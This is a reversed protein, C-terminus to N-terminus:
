ASRMTTPRTSCHRTRRATWASSSRAAPGRWATAASGRSSRAHGRGAHLQRHEVGSLLLARAIPSCTTSTWRARSTRRSARGAGAGPLGARPARAGGHDRAVAIDVAVYRSPALFPLWGQAKCCDGAGLDVFQRGQGIAEAIELRTRRSSRSRPARRTTSPCGASPATSRAAWSTTSTSRRSRRGSRAPAGGRPRPAREEPDFALRDILLPGDMGTVEVGDVATRAAAAARHGGRAGARHRARGGRPPPDRGTADVVFTTPLARVKWARAVSKERDLLCPCTWARRARRLRDRAGADRGPERRAGRLRASGLRARLRALAPMEEVCPACWTAWFNM